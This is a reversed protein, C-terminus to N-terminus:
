LNNYVAVLETFADDSFLLSAPNGEVRVPAIKEKCEKEVLHSVCQVELLADNVDLKILRGLVELAVIRLDSGDYM